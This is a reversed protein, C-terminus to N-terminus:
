SDENSAVSGADSKNKSGFMTFSNRGVAGLRKMSESMSSGVAAVTSGVSGTKNDTVENGGQEAAKLREYLLNCEESKRTLAKEFEGMTAANEKLVRKLEKSAGEAKKKEHNVQASAKEVALRAEAAEKRAKDAQAATQEATDLKEKLMALEAEQKMKLSLTSFLQGELQSVHATKASMEDKATSEAKQALLLDAALEALETQLKEQVSKTEVMGAQATAITAQLANLEEQHKVRLAETDAAVQMDKVEEREQAERMLEDEREQARRALETVEKQQQAAWRQAEREKEGEAALSLRRMHDIEEQLKQVEQTHELGQRTSANKAQWTQEATAVDIRKKAEDSLIGSSSRSLPAGAIDGHELASLSSSSSSSSCAAEPRNEQLMQMTQLLQAREQKLATNQHELFNLRKAQEVVAESPRASSPSTSPPPPAVGSAALAATTSTAFPVHTDSENAANEKDTGSAAPIVDVEWPLKPQGGACLGRIALVLIDREMRDACILCIHMEKADEPIQKAFEKLGSVTTNEVLDTPSLDIVGTDKCYRVSEFKWVMGNDDTLPVRILLSRPGSCKVTINPNSLIRFGHILTSSSGNNSSKAKAKSSAAAAAAIDLSSSSSSRSSVEKEPARPPLPPPVTAVGIFVGATEVCVHMDEPFSVQATASSVASIKLREVLEPLREVDRISNFSSSPMTPFPNAETTGLSARVSSICYQGGNISSDAVSRLLADAPLVRDSEVYRTYGEDFTDQCQLCLRSGVDDVTPAYVPSQSQQVQVFTSSGHTGTRFWTFVLGCQLGDLPALTATSYALAVGATSTPIQLRLNDLLLEIHALQIERARLANASEEAARRESGPFNPLSPVNITPVSVNNLATSMKDAASTFSSRIDKTVNTSLGSMFSTFSSRRREGGSPSDGAAPSGKASM